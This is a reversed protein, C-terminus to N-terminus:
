YIESAVAYKMLGGVYCCFSKIVVNVYTCDTNIWWLDEVTLLSEILVM